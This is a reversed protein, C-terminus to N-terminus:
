AWKLRKPCNRCPRGPNTPMRFCRPDLFGTCICGEGPYLSDYCAPWYPPKNNLPSESNTAPVAVPATQAMQAVLVVLITGFLTSLRM